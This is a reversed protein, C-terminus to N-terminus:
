EAYLITDNNKEAIEMVRALIQRWNTRMGPLKNFEPSLLIQQLEQKLKNRAPLVEWFNVLKLECEIVGYLRQTLDVLIGIRDEESIDTFPQMPEAAARVEEVSNGFIERNLLRFFPMQKKRHLGYTPEQGARKIRERLKELEQYIMAWNDQFDLLIKELAEALSAQLEPDDSLDVDLHHRIAHEIEAAKTKSRTRRGVQQDFERTMISIPKIAVDIGRSELYVDTIGRLKAPIGIMSLRSDMFHREAMVNIQSLAKYDALYDLAAKSPYVLNLCKTLKKFAMMYEFRLNEDYFVDFFADFDNWDNLGHSKLQKKIEAHAKNLNELEKEPFSLNDIIEKKELEDYNELAKNLHHGIGVYDVVFGKDKGEGAVRNVRAIAQLLNHETIVKDLYMVQEIPADFGTILMENVILIGIDGRVDKEVRDFPMKFSDISQKHRSKESFENLHPLDNHDGSIVVDTKLQKLRELNIREPNSSELRKIEETLAKDIHKKYRVAAERSTAVVQAKYGNPFVHTLY